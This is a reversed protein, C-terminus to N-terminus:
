QLYHFTFGEESLEWVWKGFNKSEGFICVNKLIFGNWVIKKLKSSINQSLMLSWAGVFDPFGVHTCRLPSAPSPPYRNKDPLRGFFSRLSGSPRNDEYEYTFLFFKKVSVFESNNLLFSKAYFKFIIIWGVFTPKNTNM